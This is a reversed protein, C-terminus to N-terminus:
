YKVIYFVSIMVTARILKNILYNIKKYGYLKNMFLYQTITFIM